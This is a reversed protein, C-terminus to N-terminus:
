KKDRAAKSLTVNNSNPTHTHPSMNEQLPIAAASTGGGHRSPTPSPPHRQTPHPLVRTIYSCPTTSPPPEPVCVSGPTRASTRRLAKLSPPWPGDAPLRHGHPPLDAPPIPPPPTSPPPCTHCSRSPEEKRQEGEEGREWEEEEVGIGQCSSVLRRPGRLEKISRGGRSLLAACPSPRRGDQATCSALPRSQYWTPCGSCTVSFCHGAPM